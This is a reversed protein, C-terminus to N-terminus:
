TAEQRLRRLASPVDRFNRCGLLRRLYVLLGPLSPKQREISSLILYRVSYLWFNSIGGGPHTRLRYELRELWSSQRGLQQLVEDPSKWHLFEELALLGQYSCWSLQFRDALELLRAWNFETNQSLVRFADAMWSVDAVQAYRLGHVITHLLQEPPALVRLPLDGVQLATRSLEQDFQALCRDQFVHAHLDVEEKRPSHLAFSHWVGFDEYGQCYSRPSFVWGERLLKQALEPAQTVWIDIDGMPRLSRDSFYGLTMAAGKLVLPKDSWERGLKEVQRLLLHNRVWAQKRVGRCQAVLTGSAGWEAFRPELLPLIRGCLDDLKGFEVQGSWNLWAQHGAEGPLLAARLMQIHMWSPRCGFLEAQPM